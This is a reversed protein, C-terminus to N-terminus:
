GGPKPLMFLQTFVARGDQDLAVGIGTHTYRGDLISKRHGKSKMWGKLAVAVPDDHGRSSHLNEAILRFKLGHYKARSELTSGDLGTHSFFNFRAMKSSYHRAAVTLREHYHLPDLGRAVRIENIGELTQRELSRLDTPIKIDDILIAVFVVWGDNSTATGLGVADFRAATASEWGPGYEAWSRSFKEGYDSYGRGMDLHLKALRFSRIGTEELHRDIPRQRALRRSHPMAVVKRAYSQAADDLSARRELTAIGANERASQLHDFVRDVWSYEPIAVAAASGALIGAIFAQCALITKTTRLM